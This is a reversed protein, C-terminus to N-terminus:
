ANINSDWGREDQFALPIFSLNNFPFSHSGMLDSLHHFGFPLHGFCSEPPLSVFIIQCLGADVVADNYQVVELGGIIDPFNESAGFGKAAPFDM